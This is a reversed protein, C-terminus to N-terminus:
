KRSSINLFNRNIQYTRFQSNNEYYIKAKQLMMWWLLDITKEQCESKKWWYFQGSLYLQFITSLPTLCWIELGVADNNIHDKQVWKDHKRINSIKSIKGFKFYKWMSDKKLKRVLLDIKKYLYGFKEKNTHILIDLVM